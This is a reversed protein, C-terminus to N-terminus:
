KAEPLIKLKRGCAYWDHAICAQADALSIGDSCVLKHLRNEVVDKAHFGIVRSSDVPQPWLNANSNAGGLEISILHDIEYGAGPCGKTQGYAACVAKKQGETVHREAGTRFDAACLKEATLAPDAEGPTAKADQLVARGDHRYKAQAGALSACALAIFLVARRM